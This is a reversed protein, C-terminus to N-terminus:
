PLTFGSRKNAAQRLPIRNTSHEAIVAPLLSLLPNNARRQYGSISWPEDSSKLVMTGQEATTYVLIDMNDATDLLLDSPFTGHRRRGASVFIAQPRVAQLFRTTNSTKSGHHAALMFSSQVDAQAAVLEREDTSEIDGPFLVSVHQASVKIVLGSNHNSVGETNRVMNNICQVTGGAFSLREGEHPVTHPINLSKLTDLFANFSIDDRRISSLWVQTPYFTGLIFPIGNFHDSDCHTVIVLDLRTIGMAWLYPAIIREGVTTQGLLSGGGDILIKEGSPLEILSCSGQGVDLFHFKAVHEDPETGIHLTTYVYTLTFTAFICSISLARSLRFQSVVLLLGVYFGIILWIPPPPLWISAFPMDALLATAFDASQIGLNGLSLIAGGLPECVFSLASGLFGCPLTWLCTIPEILLNAIPGILSVRNFASLCLPATTLCTALSVFLAAVLYQSTRALISFHNAAPKAVITRVAPLLILITWIACFSLQFSLSFLQIPDLILLILAAAAVLPGPSKRRNLLLALLVLCAMLSARVIPINMGAITSYFLLFPITLITAAKRASILLLVNHFRSVCFRFFTFLLLTIIGLHLGSIALLHYVGSAKYQERTAPSLRSKDGLLIARYFANAEQNQSVHDIKEAITGRVREPLYRITHLLNRKGTVQSILAPSRITGVVWISKQALIRAYDFSGPTAPSFPRDLDARILLQDGPSIRPPEHNRLYFQVKGTAKQFASSDPFLIASNEVLLSSTTGNFTAMEALTGLCVAETRKPIKHYIHQPSPPTELSYYGHLFGSFLALLQLVTFSWSKTVYRCLLFILVLGLLALFTDTNNTPQHNRTIFAAFIGTAFAFTTCVLASSQWGPHSQGNM